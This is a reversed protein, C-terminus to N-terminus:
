RTTRGVIRATRDQDWRVAMREGERRLEERDADPGGVRELAKAVPM